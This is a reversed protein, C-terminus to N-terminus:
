SYSFIHCMGFHMKLIHWNIRDCSVVIQLSFECRETLVEQTADAVQPLIIVPGGEPQNSVDGHYCSVIGSATGKKM